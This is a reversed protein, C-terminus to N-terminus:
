AKDWVQEKMFKSYTQEIDLYYFPLYVAVGLIEASRAVFGGCCYMVAIHCGQDVM